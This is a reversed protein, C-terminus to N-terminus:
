SVAKSVQGIITDQVYSDGVPTGDRPLQGPRRRRKINTWRAPSIIAWLMTVAVTGM